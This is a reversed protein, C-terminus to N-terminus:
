AGFLARAHGRFADVDVDLAIRWRPTRDPARDPVPPRLDVVTAGWAASAGTDVALPLLSSDLLEPHAVAM